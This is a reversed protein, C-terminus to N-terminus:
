FISGSTQSFLLTTAVECKVLVPPRQRETHYMASYEGLLHSSALTSPSPAEGQNAHTHRRLRAFSDESAVNTSLCMSAVDRLFSSADDSKISTADPYRRKLAPIAFGDSCPPCRLSAGELDSASTDVDVARM